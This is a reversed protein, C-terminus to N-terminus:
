PSQKGEMVQQSLEGFRGVVGDILIGPIGHANGAAFVRGEGRWAPDRGHAASGAPVRLRGGRPGRSRGEAPSCM